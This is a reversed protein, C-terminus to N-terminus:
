RWLHESTETALVAAPFDAVNELQCWASVPRGQADRGLVHLWGEPGLLPLEAHHPLEVHLTEGPEITRGHLPLGASRYTEGALAPEEGWALHELHVPGAAWRPLTIQAAVPGTHSYSAEAGADAAPLAISLRPRDSSLRVLTLQWDGGRELNLRVHRAGPTSASLVFYAHSTGAVAASVEPSLATMDAGALSAAVESPHDGAAAERDPLDAALDVELFRPGSMYYRGVRGFCPPVAIADEAAPADAAIDVAATEQAAVSTTPWGLFLDVSFQRYLSDFRQGTAAELNGIGSRPGRVLQTLLQPGYRSVCWRLFLYGSGRVQPDRGRHRAHTPLSLPANGCSALRAAIRYDLNTWVPGQLNEGVHALAENLWGQEPASPCLLSTRERRVSCVAAHTYEHALLTALHRGPRTNANLFLIDARNSFPPEGRPNFDAPVVMGGLALRGEDLRSLWSTLVIALRGDGDVDAVTGMWPVLRPFVQSDFTEAVAAATEMSVQDALDGYVAAHRGAVLLQTQIERWAAPNHSDARGVKLFFRRHGPTPDALTPEPQSPPDSTQSADASTADAPQENLLSSASADLPPLALLSSTEAASVAHSSLTVQRPSIDDDALNAVVLLYSEGAESFPLDFTAKDRYVIVQYPRQPELPWQVKAPSIWGILGVFTLAICATVALKATM